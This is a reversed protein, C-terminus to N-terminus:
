DNNNISKKKNMINLKLKQVAATAEELFVRFDEQFDLDFENEEEPGCLENCTKKYEIIKQHIEKETEWKDVIEDIANFMLNPNIIFYRKRDGPKTYYKIKDGTQLHDLQTSITSKSAKLDKVLRDFTIGKQRTLILTALIRAAVPSLDHKREMQLGLQEILEKKQVELAENDLKGYNQLQM